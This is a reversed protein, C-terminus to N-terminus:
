IHILSLNLDFDTNGLGRIYFRPFTRGFSSEVVLSPTRASLANMDAAGSTIATLADGRLASVSIPIDKTSEAKKRATVIVTEVQKSNADQAFSAIPSFSSVGLAIISTALLQKKSFRIKMFLSELNTTSLVIKGLQWLTPWIFLNAQSM